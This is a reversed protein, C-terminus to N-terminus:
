MRLSFEPGVCQTVFVISVVLSLNVEIKEPRIRRILFESNICNTCQFYYPQEKVAILLVKLVFLISLYTMLQSTSHESQALLEMCLVLHIQFGALEEFNMEDWSKFSKKRFHVFNLHPCNCFLTEVKRFMSSFMTLKISNNKAWFYFPFQEEVKGSAQILDINNECFLVSVLTDKPCIMATQTISLWPIFMLVVVQIGM